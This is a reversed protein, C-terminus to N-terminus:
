ALFAFLVFAFFGAGWKLSFEGLWIGSGWAVMYFEICARVLIYGFVALILLSAIRGGYKKNEARERM